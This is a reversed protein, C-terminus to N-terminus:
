DPLDEMDVAGNAVADKVLEDFAVGLTDLLATVERRVDGIDVAERAIERTTEADRQDAPMREIEDAGHTTTVTEVSLTTAGEGRPAVLVDQEPPVLLTLVNERAQPQEVFRAQIDTLTEAAQAQQLREEAARLWADQERAITPWEDRPYVSSLLADAFSPDRSLHVRNADAVRPDRGSIEEDPETM